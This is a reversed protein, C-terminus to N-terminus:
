FLGPIVEQAQQAFNEENSELYLEWATADWIEARSGVGIIVLDKTLAAYDRLLQPLLVRGQKDPSEDTAGSLFVRLYRRAEESTVPAQRIKEHVAQFEKASFVYLCREQGRTIVVGDELESRFKAPLILRSKEDLKPTHTGLLMDVGEADHKGWKVGSQEM